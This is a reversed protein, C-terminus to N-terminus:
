DLAEAVPLCCSRRENLHIRSTEGLFLDRPPFVKERVSHPLEEIVILDIERSFPENLNRRFEVGGLILCIAAFQRPPAQQGDPRDRSQAQRPKTAPSLGDM